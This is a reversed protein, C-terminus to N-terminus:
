VIGSQMASISGKEACGSTIQWFWQWQKFAPSAGVGIGTCPVTSVGKEATGGEGLVSLQVGRQNSRAQITIWAKRYPKPHVMNRHLMIKERKPSLPTRIM